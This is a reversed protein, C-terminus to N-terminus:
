FETVKPSVKKFQPMAMGYVANTYTPDCVLYLEGKHKVKDGSVRKSFRVATAMHQPYNLLLVKLGILEKVLRAFIVSRDECDSYPYSLTEEAFFWKEYGFQQNDTKYAFAKQVFALLINVAETEKKGRVIEALKKMLSRRSYVSLPAGAYADITTQPYNKVFDVVEVQYEVPVFYEKGKYKFKLDRKKKVVNVNPWAKLKLNLKKEAGPYKDPYTYISSRKEKFKRTSLKYYKDGKFVYYSKGYVMSTTPLLLYVTQKDYGIRAQYGTKILLFWTYLNQMKRSNKFVEKTLLEIFMLYAWDNKLLNEHNDELQKYTVDHDLSATNEWFKAISKNGLKVKKTKKIKEPLTITVIKGLFDVEVNYKDEEPKVVPVVPIVVPVDDIDPKLSPIPAPEPIAPELDPIDVVPTPDDEIPKPKSKPAVPINVPKPKPYFNKGKINKLKFWDDKLTSAFIEDLKKSSKEFKKEISDMKNDLKKELKDFDDFSDGDILYPIFFIIFIIFLKKM